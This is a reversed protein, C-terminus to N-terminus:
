TKSTKIKSKNKTQKKEKTRMRFFGNEIETTEDVICHKLISASLDKIHGKLSIFVIDKKVCM